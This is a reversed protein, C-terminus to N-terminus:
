WISFLNVNEIRGSPDDLTNCSGNCRDLNVMFSNYHLGINYKDPNLDIFTPRTMCPENSLCLHDSITVMRALLRSFTLLTIFEQKIFGFM